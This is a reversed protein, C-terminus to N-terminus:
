VADVEESLLMGDDVVPVGTWIESLLTQSLVEVPGVDRRRAM